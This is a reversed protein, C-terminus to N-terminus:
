RSTLPLSRATFLEAEGPVEREASLHSLDNLCRLAYRGDRWRVVAVSTHEPAFFQDAPISLLMSLYANIVAAHTVIAIRSAPNSALIREITQVARRRFSRSCEFGPLTDWRPIETFREAMRAPPERRAGDVAEFEIDALGDLVHVPLAGTCALVRATQQARREPASYVAQLWTASLRAALREAQQLGTCSLMPDPSENRAPEAHRVLLVEGADEGRLRLAEDIEDEVAQRYADSGRTENDGIM